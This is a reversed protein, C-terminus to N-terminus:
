DLIKILSSKMEKYNNIQENIDGMNQYEEIKELNCYNSHGWDSYFEDKNKIYIIRANCFSMRKPNGKSNIESSNKLTRHNICYFYINDRIGIDKARTMRFFKKGLWTITYINKMNKLNTDDKTKIENKNIKKSNKINFYKPPSIDKNDEEFTKTESDTIKEKTAKKKNNLINYKKEKEIEQYETKKYHNKDENDNGKNFDKKEEKLNIEKDDNYESLQSINKEIEEETYDQIIIGIEELYESQSIEEGKDSEYNLNDSIPM